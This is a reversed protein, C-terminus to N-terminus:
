LSVSDFALTDCIRAVNDGIYSTWWELTGNMPVSENAPLMDGCEPSVQRLYVAPMREAYDNTLRWNSAADLKRINLDRRWQGIVDNCNRLGFCRGSADICARVDETTAITMTSCFFVGQCPSPPSSQPRHLRLAPLIRPSHQPAKQCTVAMRIQDKSGYRENLFTGTIICDERNVLRRFEDPNEAEYQVQPALAVQRGLTTLFFFGFREPRTHDANWRLQLVVEGINEGEALTMTFWVLREPDNRNHMRQYLQTNGASDIHAELGILETGAFVVTINRKEENIPTWRLRTPFAEYDKDDSLGTAEKAREVVAGLDPQAIDLEFQVNALRDRESQIRDQGAVISIEVKTNADRRLVLETAFRTCLNDKTPFSMGSIAELVSSKGSSQDGCVAIEPLDVYRSLGRSRLRDIVDLLQRHDDSQLMISAM